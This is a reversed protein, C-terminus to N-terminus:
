HIQRHRTISAPILWSAFSRQLNNAHFGNVVYLDGNDAAARSADRQSFAQELPCGLKLNRHDIRCIHVVVLRAPGHYTATNKVERLCTSRHRADHWLLADPHFM